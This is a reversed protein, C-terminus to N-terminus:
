NNSKWVLAGTGIRRVSLQPGSGPSRGAAAVLGNSVALTDLEGQIPTIPRTWALKGTTANFAQISGFPDSASGCQSGGAVVLGDGVAISDLIDQSAVITSRRWLLHGTAADYKAVFGGGAVYVRGGPLALSDVQQSCAQSLPEITIARLHVAQAVNARTLITEALNARSQAANYDTQSWPSSMTGAPTGAARAALEGAAPSGGAAALAGVMIAAVTIARRRVRSMNGGPGVDGSSLRGPARLRHRM